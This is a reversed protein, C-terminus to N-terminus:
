QFLSHQRNGRRLENRAALNKEERILERELNRKLEAADKGNNNAM